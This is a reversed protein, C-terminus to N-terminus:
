SAPDVRCSAELSPRRALLPYFVFPLYALGLGFPARRGFRRAVGVSVVGLAVLNVGPVLLPLTVWPRHGAVRVLVYANYLPVLVAWGREGAREFTRWAAGLTVGVILLELLWVFPPLLDQM